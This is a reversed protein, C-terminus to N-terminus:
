ICIQSVKTAKELKDTVSPLNILKDCYKKILEFDHKICNFEPYKNIYIGIHASGNVAIEKIKEIIIKEIM